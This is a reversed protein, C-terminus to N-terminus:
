GMELELIRAFCRMCTSVRPVPADESLDAPSFTWACNDRMNAKIYKPLEYNVMILLRALSIRSNRHKYLTIKHTDHTARCQPINNINLFFLFLNGCPPLHQLRFTRNLHIVGGMVRMKGLGMEDGIFGGVGGRLAESYLVWWSAYVQYQYPRIDHDRGGKFRSTALGPLTM